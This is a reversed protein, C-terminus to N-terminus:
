SKRTKFQITDYFQGREYCNESEVKAQIQVAKLLYRISSRIQERELAEESDALADLLETRELYGLTVLDKMTLVGAM